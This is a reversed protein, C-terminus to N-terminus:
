RLVPINPLPLYGIIKTIGQAFMIIHELQLKKKALYYLTTIAVLVLLKKKHQFSTKKLFHVIFALTKKINRFIM